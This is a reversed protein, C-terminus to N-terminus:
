ILLPSAAPNAIRMGQELERLRDVKEEEDLTEFLLSNWKNLGAKTVVNGDMGFLLSETSECTPCAGLDYDTEEDEDEMVWNNIDYPACLSICRLCGATEAEDLAGRFAPIYGLHPAYIRTVDKFKEGLAKAGSVWDFVRVSDDGFVYITSNEDYEIHTLDSFNVYSTKGLRNRVVLTDETWALSHALSQWLQWLGFLILGAAVIYAVTPNPAEGCYITKPNLFFEFIKAGTGVSLVGWFAPWLSLWKTKSQMETEQNEMSKKYTIIEFLLKEFPILNEKDQAWADDSAAWRSTQRLFIM